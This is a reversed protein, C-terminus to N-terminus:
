ITKPEIDIQTPLYLLLFIVFTKMLKLENKVKSVKFLTFKVGVM